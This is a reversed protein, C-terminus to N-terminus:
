GSGATMFNNALSFLSTSVGGLCAVAHRRPRSRLHEMPQDNLALAAQATQSIFTALDVSIGQDESSIVVQSTSPSGQLTVAQLISSVSGQVTELVPATQLSNSTPCSGMTSLFRLCSFVFFLYFWRSSDLLSFCFLFSKVDSASSYVRSVGTCM